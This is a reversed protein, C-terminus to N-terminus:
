QEMNAWIQLSQESNWIQGYRYCSNVTGYKGMDTVVTRQEINAWIQLSQESNWIQWYRYRSYTTGYKGMDTVVTRQVM